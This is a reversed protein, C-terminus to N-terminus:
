LVRIETTVLFLVSSASDMCVVCTEKKELQEATQVKTVLSLDKM